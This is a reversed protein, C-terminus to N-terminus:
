RLPSVDKQVLISPNVNRETEENVIKAVLKAFDPHNTIRDMLGDAKQRREYLKQAAEDSLPFGCKGCQISAPTNELCCRPCYVVGVAKNSQLDIKKKGFVALIQDDVQKGSLHTYISATRGGQQWGFHENMVAETLQPAYYTALSHRLLHPRIPKNIGARRALGKLMEHAWDYSLQGRPIEHRRLTNVWVPTDPEKNPHVELWSTLALSAAPTM